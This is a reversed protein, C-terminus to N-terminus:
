VLYHQLSTHTHPPLPLSTTRGLRAAGRRALRPSGLGRNTKRTIFALNVVVGLDISAPQM